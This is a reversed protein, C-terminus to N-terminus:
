QALLTFVQRFEFAAPPDSSPDVLVIRVRIANPWSWGSRNLEYSRGSVAGYPCCIDSSSTGYQKKRLYANRVHRPSFGNWAFTLYTGPGAKFDYDGDDLGPYDWIIRDSPREAPYFALEGDKRRGDSYDVQFVPVGFAVLRHYDKPGYIRTREHGRWGRMRTSYRYTPYPDGEELHAPPEENVCDADLDGAGECGPSESDPGPGNRGLRFVKSLPRWPRTDEPEILLVDGSIADYPDNLGGFKTGYLFPNGYSGMASWFLKNLDNIGMNYFDPGRNHGGYGDDDVAWRDPLLLTQHRALVQNRGLFEPHDELRESKSGRGQSDYNDSGCVRETQGWLIRAFSGTKEADVASIQYGSSLLVLMDMRAARLLQLDGDQDYYLSIVAQSDGRWFRRTQCRLVLFGDRTIGALDRGIHEFIQRAAQHIAASARVRRTVQSSQRFVVAIMAIMGAAIGISVLAEILTFGQARKSRVGRLHM